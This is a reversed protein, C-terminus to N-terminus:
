RILSDTYEGLMAFSPHIIVRFDHVTDNCEKWAEIPASLSMLLIELIM